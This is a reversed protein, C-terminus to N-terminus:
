LISNLLYYIAAVSLHQCRFQLYGHGSSKQQLGWQVASSKKNDGVGIISGTITHTTSVPIGLGTAMFLTMAGATEQVFGEFPKLKTIKQGM